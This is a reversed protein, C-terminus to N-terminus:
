EKDHLLDIVEPKAGLGTAKITLTHSVVQFRRISKREVTKEDWRTKKVDVNGRGGPYDVVTNGKLANGINYALRTIGISDPKRDYVRDPHQPTGNGAHAVSSVTGCVMMAM